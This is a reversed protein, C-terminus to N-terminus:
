VLRQCLEEELTLQLQVDKMNWSAEQTLQCVIECRGGVGAHGDGGHQVPEECLVSNDVALRDNLRPCRRQRGLGDNFCQKCVVWREAQCRPCLLM